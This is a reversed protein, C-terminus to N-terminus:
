NRELTIPYLVLIIRYFVLIISYCELIIPYFELTIPDNAHPFREQRQGRLTVLATM